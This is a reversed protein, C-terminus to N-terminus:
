RGAITLGEIALTPAVYSGRWEIDNALLIRPFMDQLRGAVTIESVPYALEGNEIWFGTAGRSYDGTVLNTGHGIFDTVYLGTGISRILDEPSVDGPHLM